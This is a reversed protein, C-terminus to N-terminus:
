TGAACGAIFIYFCNGGRTKVESYQDIIAKNVRRIIGHVTSLGVGFYLSIERMSEQNAMYTLFILLQKTPDTEERGGPTKSTLEEALTPLIQDFMCKPI